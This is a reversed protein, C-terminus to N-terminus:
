LKELELFLDLKKCSFEKSSTTSTLTSINVPTFLNRLEDRMEGKRTYGWMQSPSM